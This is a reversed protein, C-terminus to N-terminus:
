SKTMSPSDYRGLSLGFSSASPGGGGDGACLGRVNGRRRLLLAYAEVAWQASAVTLGLERQMVHLAVNVVTGDLFAM